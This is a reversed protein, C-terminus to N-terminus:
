EYKKNKHLFRRAYFVFLGQVNELALAFDGLCDKSQQRGVFATELQLL